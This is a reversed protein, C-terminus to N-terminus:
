FMANNLCSETDRSLEQSPVYVAEEAVSGVSAVVEIPVPDTNIVIQLIASNTSLLKVIYCFGKQKM